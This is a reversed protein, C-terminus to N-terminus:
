EAFNKLLNSFYEVPDTNDDPLMDSFVERLLDPCQEQSKKLYELFQSYQYNRFYALAKYAYLQAATSQLQGSFKEISSILEIALIEQEFLLLRIVVQITAAIIDDSGEIYKVFLTLAGLKDQHTLLLTGKLLQYHPNKPQLKLSIDILREAESIRELALYADAMEFCSAAYYEKDNKAYNKFFKEAKKLQELAEVNREADILCIAYPLSQATDHTKDDYQEFLPLAEAYNKLSYLSHAKSLVADLDDPNIALAFDASELAEEYMDLSFQAAALITWGYKLYPNTELIKSYVKVVMDYLNEERVTDALILDSDYNGLPSFTVIYDEIWRKVLEVDYGHDSLEIFSTIVHIYSDRLQEERQEEDDEHENLINEREITIWDQFMEEAHEVNGHFAYELQAKQYLVENHSSDQEKVIEEAEKYKHIFILASAKISLLSADDPHQQLGRELCAFCKDTQDITLYYDAVDLYDDADLYTAMGKEVSQEYSRLIEKFEESEYYDNKM